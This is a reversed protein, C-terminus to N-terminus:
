ATRKWMDLNRIMKKIHKQLFEVDMDTKIRNCVSCCPVVNDISYGKQNDFRDIGTYRFGGNQGSKKHHNGLSDGCFICPEIIIRLFEETTLSFDYGRKRASRKYKDYVDNRASIGLPKRFINGLSKRSEKQLCGCSRTQGKVVKEKTPNTTNGCDCLCEFRRCPRGGPYKSKYERIVTLRGYKM